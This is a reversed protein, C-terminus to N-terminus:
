IMLAKLSPEIILLSIYATNNMQAATMNSNYIGFPEKDEKTLSYDPYCDSIFPQFISNVTCAGKQVRMQRLRPLGLLKNEYYIYDTKNVVENNYWTDWYLGNLIPDQMCSWWDDAVGIGAFNLPPSSTVANALNQSVFLNYLVNSYYFTLPNTM